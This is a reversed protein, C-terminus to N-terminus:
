AEKKLKIVDEDITAHSLLKWRANQMNITMFAESNSGNFYVWSNQDSYLKQNWNNKYYCHAFKLKPIVIRSWENQSDIGFESKKVYFFNRGDIAVLKDHHILINQRLSNSETNPHYIKEITRTFANYIYLNKPSGDYVYIIILGSGGVYLESGYYGSINVSHIVHNDNGDIELIETNRYGNSKKTYFVNRIRDYFTDYKSISSDSFNPMNKEQILVGEHTYILFKHEETNQNYLKICVENNMNYIKNIRCNQPITYFNTFEFSEAHNCDTKVIVPVYNDSSNSYSYICNNNKDVLCDHSLSDTNYMAKLQPNNLSSKEIIKSAIQQGTSENFTFLAYQTPSNYNNQQIMSVTNDEENCFHHKKRTWGSVSFNRNVFEGMGAQYFKGTTGIKAGIVTGKGFGGGGVNIRGM